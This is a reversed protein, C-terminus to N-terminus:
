TDCSNTGTQDSHYSAKTPCLQLYINSIRIDFSNRTGLCEQLVHRTYTFYSVFYLTYGAINNYAQNLPCSNVVVGLEFQMDLIQPDNVDSLYMSKPQIVIFKKHLLQPSDFSILLLSAQSLSNPLPYISGKWFLRGIFYLTLTFHPVDVGYSVIM